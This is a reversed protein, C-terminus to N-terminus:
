RWSPRPFGLWLLVAYLFERDVSDYAKMFDLLVALAKAFDPNRRAETQAATLLDITAHISRLPVFGNQNPHVILPLKPNTRTALVRTLIKYDTNMLSLPRLNLPDQSVGGKKLCFIDAELFSTPGIRASYWLNLMEVLLPALLEAFDRYWDNELRDPGCAKGPKAARIAALVEAEQIPDMIDSLHVRHVWGNYCESATLRPGKSRSFSTRGRTPWPTQSDTPEGTGIGQPQM